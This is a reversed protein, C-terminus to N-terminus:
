AGDTAISSWTQPLMRHMIRDGSVLVFHMLGAAVHCGVLIILAVQFSDHWRSLDKELTDSM